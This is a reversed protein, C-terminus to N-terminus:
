RVLRLLNACNSKPVRDDGPCEPAVRDLHRGPPVRGDDHTRRNACVTWKERQL